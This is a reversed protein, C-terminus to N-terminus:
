GSFTFVIVQKKLYQKFIHEAKKFTLYTGLRLSLSSLMPIDSLSSLLSLVGTDGIENIVLDLSISALNIM